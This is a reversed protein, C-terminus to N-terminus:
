VQRDQNNRNESIPEKTYMKETSGLIQRDQSYVVPVGAFSLVDNPTLRQQTIRQGNVYTGGTSNLDSLVYKGRIARLQAHNRSIRGDQIILDNESSRGINVLSQELPFVEEGNVILFSDSPLNNKKGEFFSGIEETEDIEDFSIHAIVDVSGSMVDANTSFSVQPHQTFSLGATEGFDKIYGALDDLLQSHTDFRSNVDQSVLLIYSDPALNTGNEQTQIGSRMTTILSRLFRERYEFTPFLRALRGEVISQLSTEIRNFSTTLNKM